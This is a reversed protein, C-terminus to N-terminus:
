NRVDEIPSVYKLTACHNPCGGRMHLLIKCLAPVKRMAATIKATRLPSDDQSTTAFCEDAPALYTEVASIEEIIDSDSSAKLPASSFYKRMKM